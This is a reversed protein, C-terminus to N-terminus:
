RDSGKYGALLVAINDVHNRSMLSSEPYNNLMM